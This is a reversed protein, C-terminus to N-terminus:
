GRRGVSGMRLDAHRAPLFLPPDPGPRERARRNARPAPPSAPHDRRRSRADLAADVSRRVRGRATPAPPNDPLCPPRASTESARRQPSSIMGQTSESSQQPGGSSRRLGSMARKIKGGARARCDAGRDLGVNARPKKKGIADNRHSQKVKPETGPGNWRGFKRFSMAGITAGDGFMRLPKKLLIPRLSFIAETRM